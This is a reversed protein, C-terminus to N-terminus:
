NCSTYMFPYNITNELTLGQHGFTIVSNGFRVFKKHSEFFNAWDWARGFTWRIESFGLTFDQWYITQVYMYLVHIIIYIYISQLLNWCLLENLLFGKITSTIILLPFPCCIWTHLCKINFVFFNAHRLQSYRTIESFFISIEGWFNAFRVWFFKHPNAVRYNQKGHTNVWSLPSSLKFIGQPSM